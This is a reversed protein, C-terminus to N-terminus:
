PAVVVPAANSAFVVGVSPPSALVVYAHHFVAGALEPALAGAPLTFTAQARGEADLIGLSGALPAAGPALLTYKFYPDVPNLPLLQGDVPVGPSTGGASGLVLYTQFGHGAGASLDLQQVGGGALSLELVDSELPAVILGNEFWAVTDDGSSAALLDDGGDGDLDAAAVAVIGNSGGHFVNPFGLSGGGLNEYWSLTTGGASVVEPDGDGDLDTALVDRGVDDFGAQSSASIVEPAGFNGGHSNEYWAIEEYAALVDADGDQDLDAAFVGQASVAGDHIVIEGGFAGMPLGPYWAITDDLASACLVDVRGDADLDAVFVSQALQADTTINQPSGFSGGGLNEYWAVTDLTASASLVDADGDGDLDAALVDRAETAHLLQSSDRICM